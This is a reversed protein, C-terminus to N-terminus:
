SPEIGLSSLYLRLEDLERRLQQNEGELQRIKDEKRRRCNAAARRNRERKNRLREEDPPRKPGAVQTWKAAQSGNDQDIKAASEGSQAAPPQQRPDCKLLSNFRENPSFIPMVPPLALLDIPARRPARGALPHRGLQARALDPGPQLGALSDPRQLM